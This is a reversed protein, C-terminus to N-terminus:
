AGDSIWFCCIPRPCVRVRYGADRYRDVPGRPVGGPSKENMGHRGEPQPVPDFTLM